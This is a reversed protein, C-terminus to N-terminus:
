VPMALADPHSEIWTVACKAIGPDFQRGSGKRLEDIVHAVSYGPKYNRPSIMADISDAVQLIRSGLPIADDALRHPYGTGDFWEHHHLVLLTEKSLFTMPRLMAAGIESHRKMSEFEDPTLRGPKLLIADPIGIKGVDHLLAAVHITRILPMPLKCRRAIADAFISVHISHRHTYADRAELAALLGIIADAHAQQLHRHSLTLHHTASRLDEARLGSLSPSLAARDSSTNSHTARSGDLLRQHPPRVTKTERM